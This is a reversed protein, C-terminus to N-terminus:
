IRSILPTVQPRGLRSRRKTWSTQKSSHPPSHPQQPDFYNIAWTGSSQPIEILVCCDLRNPASAYGPRYGNRRNPECALRGMIGPARRSRSHDMLKFIRVGNPPCIRRVAVGLTWCFEEMASGSLSRMRTGLFVLLRPGEIRYKNMRPMHSRNGQSVKHVYVLWDYRVSVGAPSIPSM